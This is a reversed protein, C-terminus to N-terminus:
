GAAIGDPLVVCDRLSSAWSDLGDLTSARLDPSDALREIEARLAEVARRLRSRVTGEPIALAVALEPGTLGEWYHLEVALQLDLPIRQLAQALLRHEGRRAVLSRPSTGLDCLSSVSFDSARDRSRARFADHLENRAVAFLFGRFSAGERLRDRHEVCAALTRQILDEVGDAIKSAFFRYLSRIYREFLRGGAERDGARWAELLDVDSEM